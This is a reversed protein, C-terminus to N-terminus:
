RDLYPQDFGVLVRISAVLTGISAGILLGRAGALVIYDNLWGVADAVLPQTAILPLQLLLVILAVSIIVRPEIGRRQMARVAASLSFFALLALLSGALPEYVARFLIRVPEEALSPQPMATLGPIGVIGVLIVLLMGVLLIASYFWDKDFRTIRGFHTHAVSVIGILLALATLTATWDVILYALPALPTVPSTADILVLIGALAAIFTAVLRKPDRFV